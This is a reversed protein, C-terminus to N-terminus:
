ICDCQSPLPELYLNNWPHICNLRKFVKQCLKLQICLVSFKKNKEEHSAILPIQLTLGSIDEDMLQLLRKTKM